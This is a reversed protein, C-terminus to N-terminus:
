CCFFCLQNVVQWWISEVIRSFIWAEIKELARTFTSPEEWDSRYLHEKGEKKGPSPLKWKLTPSVKNKVKEAKNRKIFPGASLPLETDGTAQSIITRLM